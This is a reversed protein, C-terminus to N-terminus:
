GSRVFVSTRLLAELDRADITQVPREPSFRYQRGSVPGRVLISASARYRVTVTAGGLVAPPASVPRPVSRPSGEVAPAPGTRLPPPPGGQRAMRRQGCCGM